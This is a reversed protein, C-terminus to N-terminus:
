VLIEKLKQFQKNMMKAYRYMKRECKIHHIFFAPQRPSTGSPMPVFIHSLDFLNHFLTDADQPGSPLFPLM